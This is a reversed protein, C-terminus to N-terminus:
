DSGPIKLRMGAKLYDVDRLGNLRRISNVSAQYRAAIGSLTQGARVRHVIVAHNAVAVRTAVPHAVISDDPIRLKQGVRILRASRLHNYRLLTAVSVNHRAAIGGLTQGSRVRHVTVSHRVSAVRTAATGPIRLKQGVRILSASRLHNYRLLTAVSVHHRAAIGGLTQGSRVRHVTISHEVAAVRTVGPNEAIGGGTPIRLRQGARILRASRLHNYRLLAAVSVNHRRAIRGLVDGRRVRYAVYWVRQRDFREGSGLAAYLRDFRQRDGSPVRLKTDPPVYLRGEIVAPDFSPNLTHFTEADTGSLKRLTKYSVYDHTHVVDFRIPSDQDISGFYHHADAAVQSAALFEAYFNRSAFGFRPNDYHQLLDTLTSGHVESLAQAIGGRGYNYATLALPWSGLAAYDDKLHRAAADTSTWPDRRDDQVANLTMYIRASSPIFQWIGAAGVKSYADLNFSSEVLPLRTLVKPLGYSAFISEMKPLYRGAIKLAHSTRERLGHQIRLTGIMDKFRAVDGGGYLTFIRRQEATMRKPDADVAVIGKLAEDAKKLAQQEREARFQRLAQPTLQQAQRSFDLVAILKQPALASQLLSQNESYRAFVDKWFDVAPKLTAPEPFRAPDAVIRMPNTKHLTIDTAGATVAASALGPLGLWAIFLVIGLTKSSSQM